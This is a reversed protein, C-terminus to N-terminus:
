RRRLAGVVARLPATWRWSKSSEYRALQPEYYEVAFRSFPVVMRSAEIACAREVEAMSPAGPCPHPPRVGPDEALAAAADGWAANFADDIWGSM